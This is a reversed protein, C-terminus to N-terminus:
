SNDLHHVVKLLGADIRDVLCEVQEQLGQMAASQARISDNTASHWQHVKPLVSKLCADSPDETSQLTTAMKDKFDAFEQSSFVQFEEFIPHDKRDPHMIMMAVADQIFITNLTCFFKLTCLTTQNEGHASLESVANLADYCWRGIPTKRLVEDDPTLSTRPNYYMKGDSTYGALKRMPGLPLKASYSTDFISPNWQGMRKIAESEEELLELIKAGLNRGLHLIKKCTIKLRSLVSQIRDGYNDKAIEKKYDTAQVDVLVKVDYWKDRQIWDEPKFNTFENTCDFRYQAYFALGGICCLRVDKHRIARGYLTRGHNTKGIPIQNIMIYMDDIDTVKKPITIGLFDSWEAKHLSECRLIGATLHQLCYRHRLRTAIMRRCHVKSDNWLMEEIASYEEVILYPSIEGSVKEQYTERKIRPARTKVHLAMEDLGMKWVAEWHLSLVNKATQVKYMKRFVAKYQDFTAKGIPRTPRPYNNLADVSDTSVGNFNSM